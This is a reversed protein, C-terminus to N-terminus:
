LCEIFHAQEVHVVTACFPLKMFCITGIIKVGNLFRGSMLNMVLRTLVYTKVM